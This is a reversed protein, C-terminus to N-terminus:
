CWGRPRRSRLPSSRNASSAARAKSPSRRSRGEGRAVRVGLDELRIASRFADRSTHEGPTGAVLFTNVRGKADLDRQIRALPAFIARVDGQQPRLTFEGLQERPLTGELTLRITRGIDEKHAFLSELPIESPKQVRTLLVDRSAAGLEAALAPSAFTGERPTLGHFRWFREDVGYVFVNSARRGSPEHTVSRRNRDPAAGDDHGLARALDETLGERM